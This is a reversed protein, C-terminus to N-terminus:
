IYIYKLVWSFGGNKKVCPKKRFATQFFIWTRISDRWKKQNLPENNKWSRYSSRFNTEVELPNQVEPHPNERDMQPKYELSTVGVLSHCRQQHWGYNHQWRATDKHKAITISLEGKKLYSIHFIDQFLVQELWIANKINRINVPSYLGVNMMSILREVLHLYMLYIIIICHTNPCPKTHSIRLDSLLTPRLM